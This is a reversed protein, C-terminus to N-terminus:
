DTRLLRWVSSNYAKVLRLVRRGPFSVVDRSINGERIQSTEITNRETAGSADNDLNPWTLELATSASTASSRASSAGGGMANGMFVM